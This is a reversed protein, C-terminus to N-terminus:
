SPTFTTFVVAHIRETNGYPNLRKNLKVIKLAATTDTIYVIAGSAIVIRGTDNHTRAPFHWFDCFDSIGRTKKQSNEETYRCFPDSM